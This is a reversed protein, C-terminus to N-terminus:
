ATSDMELLSIFFSRKRFELGRHGDRPASAVLELNKSARRRRLGHRPELRDAKAAM